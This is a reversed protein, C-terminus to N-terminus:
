QQWQMEVDFTNAGNKAIRVNELTCAFTGASGGGFQNSCIATFTFSGSRMCPLDYTVQAGYGIRSGGELSISALASGTVVITGTSVYAANGNKTFTINLKCTVNGDTLYSITGDAVSVTGCSGNHGAGIDNPCGEGGTAMGTATGDITIDGCSNTYSISGYSLSYIFNGTGIGAASRGGTATINGGTITIDGCSATGDYAYGSGIGAGSDNGRATINGGEIRINGVTQNYGGGIGAAYGDTTSGDTWMGTEATLTGAGRITLTTNEAKTAGAPGAQIGPFDCHYGKVSNTTGDALVITADGLCTIGAWPMNYDDDWGPITAGSLTVTAGPAISIKHYGSLEGTLTLGNTVMLESGVPLNSSVSALDITKTFAGGFLYRNVNYVKAGLNLLPQGLNITGVATQGQSVSLTWSQSGSAPSAFAFSATGQADTTWGVTTSYSGGSLTFTYATEPELGGICCNLIPMASRLEYGTGATYVGQVLVMTTMLTEVNGAATLLDQHYAQSQDTNLTILGATMDKHWLTATSGALPDAGEGFSYSTENGDSDYVKLTGEFTANLGGNTPGGTMTLQGALRKAGGDLERDIYLRDGTTFKLTRTKSHTADDTTVDVASRTAKNTAEDATEDVASRTAADGATGQGDPSSEGDSMGASVTVHIATATQAPQQAVPKEEIASEEGSCATMGLVLAAVLAAGLIRYQRKATM